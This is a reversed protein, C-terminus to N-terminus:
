GMTSSFAGGDLLLNQGVIYGSLNSCLFAAAAGFEEATGFRGTPNALRAEAIAAEFSIGKTEAVKSYIANIRATEHSGPLLNNITIGHKAVQRAVSAVFGTLGTRATNSLELDQIPAKVSASTINVIRGWKREKMQPLVAKM